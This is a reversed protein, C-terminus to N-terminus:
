KNKRLIRKVVREFINVTNPKINDLCGIGFQQYDKWFQDYNAPQSTSSIICSNYKVSQSYNTETYHAPITNLYAIGKDTNACVLSIGKDDDLKPFFHEVGWYDALSIDSGSKGAKAPCSFCSPRITLNRSFALMYKNRSAREYILKSDGSIKINYKRWSSSKDKMSIQKIQSNSFTSALYDRWIKPSPVGHCVVEVLLLNDYKKLLFHNLGAVQCPTGSFLVKRGSKLFDRVIKFSNGLYSQVYKSGQFVKLEDKTEVYSHIVEWKENFQAGFVVGGDNIVAEALMLFIGGSSSNRRVEENPNILASARLPEKEDDQNLYPCVKECLHCDICEDLNVSPYRFGYQDEDFSICKRPCSQVCATCGCCNHKNLIEIM